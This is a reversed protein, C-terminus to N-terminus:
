IYIDRTCKSTDRVAYQNIVHACLYIDWTYMSIKWTYMSLDRICKPIIRICSSTDWICM